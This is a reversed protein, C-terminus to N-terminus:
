RERCILALAVFLGLGSETVRYSGRSDSSVLGARVLEKLHHYFQGGVLGTVESLAQATLEGRRALANLIAVRQPSAFPAVFAAFEPGAIDEAIPDIRALRTSASRVRGGRKVLVANLGALVEDVDGVHAALNDTLDRAFRPAAEARPATGSLPPTKRGSDEQGDGAPGGPEPGSRLAAVARELAALREELGTLREEGPPRRGTGKHDDADM